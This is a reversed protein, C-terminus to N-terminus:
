ANCIILNRNVTKIRNVVEFELESDTLIYDFDYLGSFYIESVDFFKTHDVLLFSQTSNERMQDKIAGELENTCGVGYKANCGIGSIFAKDAHFKQIYKLTSLDAMGAMGQNYTGPAIQLTIKNNFCLDQIIPISNTIVTLHINPLYRIIQYITSSADLFITDGDKIFEAAERGLARKYPSEQMGRKMFSPINMKDKRLTAGGYHMEVIGSDELEHFDRRITMESVLYLESLEKVSVKGNQELLEVIEKRRKIGTFGDTQKM